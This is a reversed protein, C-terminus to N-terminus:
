LKAISALKLYTFQPDVVCVTWCITLNPVRATSGPLVSACSCKVIVRNSYQPLFTIGAAAGTTTASPRRVVTVVVTENSTGGVPGFSTGPSMKLRVLVLRFRLDSGSIRVKTCGTCPILILIRCGASIRGDSHTNPRPGAFM